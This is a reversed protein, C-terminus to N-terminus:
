FNTDQDGCHPMEPAYPNKLKDKQVSNQVWKKKVMPCSYGNYPQGLDYDSLLHILTMSFLHYNQNNEERSSGAKIEKIRQHSFSLMKAIEEDSVNSIANSVAKAGKEVKEADYEFFAAHLAENAEFIRLLEKKIEDSLPKRSGKQDGEGSVRIHSQSYGQDHTHGEGAVALHFSFNGTLSGIMGGASVMGILVVSSLNFKIM